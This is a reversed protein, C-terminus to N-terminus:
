KNKILYIYSTVLCIVSLIIITLVVQNAGAQPIKTPAVTKDNGKNANKDNDAEAPVKNGDNAPQKEGEDKPTEQKTAVTIDIKLEKTVNNETYSITISKDDVTLAGSPKVTYNTIEKTTGDAYQATIVMGTKDFTDGTTYSTKTPTKTIAISSLVPKTDEETPTKLTINKTIGSLEKKEYDTTAVTIKDNLKVWINEKASESVKFTIEAVDSNSSGAANVANFKGTAENYTVQWGATGQVTLNSVNSQSITGSVVGVPTDSNVHITLKGSEGNNLTTNGNVQVTPNAAYVKTFMLGAMILVFCMVIKLRKM